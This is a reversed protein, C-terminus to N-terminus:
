TLRFFDQTIKDALLMGKNTLSIFQPNLTLCGLTEWYELRESENETFGGAELIDATKVGWRARLGTLFLENWKNEKSLTESEFWDSCSFNAKIYRLNNSINWRRRLGDYSHASPGFGLYPIGKWYNSNHVSEEGPHAFNSVEYHEFGKGVFTDIMLHFQNEISEESPMKLQGTAINKKLSTKPEVTLCYTSIHNIPLRVIQELTDVWQHTTLDPLGYMIDASIRNFGKQAALRIADKGDKAAHARNMWRLDQEKISQLGISLRNVGLSKWYTLKNADVDEPNVELTVEDLSTTKYHKFIQNLLLDLEAPALISPTGGGIYITDIQENLESKRFEIEEGIKRILDGRYKEFSTSFHFDCYSCRKRCFPIHIYIGAV